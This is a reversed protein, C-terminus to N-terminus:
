GGTGSGEVCVGSTSRPASGSCCSRVHVFNCYVSQLLLLCCSFVAFVSLVCCASADLLVCCIGVDLSRSRHMMCTSKRM